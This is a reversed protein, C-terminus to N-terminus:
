FFSACASPRTTGSHRSSDGSQCPGGVLVAPLPLRNLVDHIAMCRVGPEGVQAAERLACACSVDLAKNVMGEAVASLGSRASELVTKAPGDPVFEPPPAACPM